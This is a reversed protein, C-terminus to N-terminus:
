AIEVAPNCLLSKLAASIARSCFYPSLEPGSPKLEFFSATLYGIDATWLFVIGLDEYM